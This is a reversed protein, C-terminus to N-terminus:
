SGSDPPDLYLWRPNVLKEIVVGSRSQLGEPINIRLIVSCPRGRNQNLLATLDRAVAENAKAYGFVPEDGGLATLRFCAWKTSDAFEHSYFNDAQLYVRFDFSTNIPREISFTNWDMPQYCVLTEWDVLPEGNPPVEIILNTTKHNDLEVVSLWFNTNPGLTLPELRRIQVVTRPIMPEKAYHAAMLPAVRRPHRAMRSRAEVSETKFFRRIRTEIRELLQSAEQIEKADEELMTVTESQVQKALPAAERVRSLSWLAAGSLLLGILVFWGWPIHKQQTSANGWDSEFLDPNPLDAEIIAEIGPQHSRTEYEARDPISLRQSVDPEEAAIKLRVAAARNGTEDTELRIVPVVPAPSDDVTRLEVRKGERAM